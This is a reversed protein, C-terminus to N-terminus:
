KKPPRWTRLPPLVNQPDKRPTKRNDAYTAVHGRGLYYSAAVAKGHKFLKIQTQGTSSQWKYLGHRKGEFYTAEEIEYHKSRRLIKTQIGHTLGTKGSRMGQLYTHKNEWLTYFQTLSDFIPRQVETLRWFHYLQQVTLPKLPKM